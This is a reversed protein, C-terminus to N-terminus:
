FYKAQSHYMTFCTPLCLHKRCETCGFKTQSTKDQLGSKCRMYCVHCWSRSELTGPLHRQTLRDDLPLLSPRGKRATSTFGDVLGRIISQTFQLFSLQQKGQGPQHHPSQLFLQYANLKMVELLRFFVKVTWKRTKHNFSYYQIFQDAKDVGGMYSTYDSLLKPCSVNQRAFTGDEGKVLRQVEGFSNDHITSLATVCKKDKWVVAVLPGKQRFAMDGRQVVGEPRKQMIDKPLGRQNSRVTGCAYTKDDYLSTLLDPSTYFNDM